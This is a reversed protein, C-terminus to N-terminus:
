MSQRPNIELHHPLTPRSKLLLRFQLTLLTIVGAFGALVLLRAAPHTYLPYRLWDYLYYAIAVLIGAIMLATILIAALIAVTSGARIRYGAILSALGATPLISMMAFGELIEGQPMKHWTPNDILLAFPILLLGPLLLFYGLIILILAASKRAQLPHHISPSQYPLTPM